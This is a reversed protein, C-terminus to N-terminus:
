RYLDPALGAALARLVDQVVAKSANERRFHFEGLGALGLRVREQVYATRWRAVRDRRWRHVNGGLGPALRHGPTM